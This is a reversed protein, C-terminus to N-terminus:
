LTAAPRGSAVIRPGDGAKDAKAGSWLRRRDPPMQALLEKIMALDPGLRFQYVYRELTPPEADAPISAGHAGTSNLFALLRNPRFRVTEVHECRHPEIYLPKDDPAEVDDRVRYLQTGYTEPDGPRALYVLGVVFGWKPDRHPAIVYGPRRLMIRGDSPHLTEFAAGPFCSRAYSALEARFKDCLADRLPSGVVEQAMFRWVRHSYEPGISFPVMLRQRSPERQAFFVAPPLGRILADYVNRPLWDDVVIHPFPELDLRARGVAERVHAGVRAPDLESALRELDCRQERDLREILLLQETRIQLQEITAGMQRTTEVLRDVRSLTRFFTRPRLM